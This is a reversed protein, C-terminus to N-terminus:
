VVAPSLVRSDAQQIGQQAAIEQLRNLFYEYVSRLADAKRTLKQLEVLDQSQSQIRAETEEVSASLGKIQARTREVATEAGKMLQLYRSRFVRDEMAATPARDGAVEAAAAAMAAKDGTDWAARLRQLRAEADALGARLTAIRERTDKAQRNLAELAEPSILETRANFDKVATEAEALEKELSAVRETLWDTAQRTAEFKADLQNLIYLDALANALRASKKPDTTTVSLTFVYSNRKNAAAIRSRVAAVTQDLVQEATPPPAPPVPGLVWERVMRRLTGITFRPPERLTANFEPDAVLNEREVLKRVLGRSTMVELETNITATDASLGSVVGELDLVKNQRAELALSATATYMPVARVFVYYGAIALALFMGVLLWLKGRWLT